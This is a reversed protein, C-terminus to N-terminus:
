ECSRCVPRVTCIQKTVHLSDEAGARLVHKFRTFHHVQHRTSLHQRLDFSNAECLLRDFCAVIVLAGADQRTASDFEISMVM